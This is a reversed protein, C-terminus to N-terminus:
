GQERVARLIQRTTFQPTKRTKTSIPTVLVADPRSSTLREKRPFRPPFLWKPVVRKTANKPSLLNQLAIRDASDVDMCVFCAGLTDKSIAEQIIRCAINQHQQISNPLMLM